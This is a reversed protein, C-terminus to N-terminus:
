PLTMALLGDVKWAGRERTLMLYGAPATKSGILARAQHGDTRVAVVTVNAPIQAHNHKFIKSMVVTCTRGHSYAPGAGRGYDEPISEAFLSYMLSCARAGNAAAAAAYYAKVLATIARVDSADAVEGYGRIPGDDSDYYTQPENAKYDNDLDADDDHTPHATHGAPTDDDDEDGRLGHLSSAEEGSTTVSQVGGATAVNSSVHSASSTNKGGSGGCATFFACILVFAAVGILSRV